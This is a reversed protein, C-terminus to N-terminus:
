CAERVVALLVPDTRLAAKGAKPLIATVTNLTAPDGDGLPVCKENVTEFGAGQVAGRAADVNQGVVDPIKSKSGNSLWIKVTTGMAVAAGASPTQKAIQGVPLSSDTEGGDEYALKAGEIATKAVDPTTGVYDGVIISTGQILNQPAEDFSGGKYSKNVSSMIDHSVQHRINGGNPYLRIPYSGSINGVWVTTTVKTSSSTVWTQKSKDTTGTKGMLETGDRTNANYGDMATQLASVAAAAVDESIARKCDADQGALKKGAADTVSTVAIPKCFVGHNAIGAYAAAVSLPAIDNTGIIASPNTQIVNDVLTTNPNDVKVATHIGLSEAIDKTKCLDLELAMAVYAGNVSLATAQRVSMYGPAPADNKPSWSGSYPGNCSDTFDALNYTRPSAAVSEQLGHGEELWNLLTFVKYTSGVQFGSSGGYDFDTNFNIATARRGGGKKTDDFRKNQAMFLIEGTGVGVGIASGGLKLRKENSPVYKRVVTQAVKQQKLDLTTFLKYGGTKWAAAREVANTGLAELDKVSHVVYDCFQKAYQNAAICGNEPATLKVFKKDVPIEIAEKYEAETIFKANYMRLLVNDRRVQNAAYHNVNDLSREGPLQVIALLSAAQSATLNRASVGFYRKAASQIGYTNGGFGAINLYALMVQDKSYKKELGIAYKMEKLKRDISSEQCANIAAKQAKDESPEDNDKVAAMICINKVLQQTLTSAGETGSTTLNKVAARAIGQLDIGGHDYFRIDEAALTAQKVVEPVQDWTLEVRNQSYVTAILVNKKGQKAYIRNQQPQKEIVIHEPLSDFIDISNNAAMSTVALAPTVMVTVLLGALASFGILGVIASFVGRPRSKQASM